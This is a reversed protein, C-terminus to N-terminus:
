LQPTLLSMRLQQRFGPNPNAITRIKQISSIVDEPTQAYKKSLYYTLITVSRSVGAACHVYVKQGQSLADDIFRYTDSFYQSVDATSHDDLPLHRYAFQSDFYNPLEKACNVIHSVGMYKLLPLNKAVRYNGLYLGPMIENADDNAATATASVSTM